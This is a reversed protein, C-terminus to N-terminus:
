LKDHILFVWNRSIEKYKSNGLKSNRKVYEICITEKDYEDFSSTKWYQGVVGEIQYVGLFAYFPSIIDISVDKVEYPDIFVPVLYHIDTGGNPNSVHIWFDFIRKTNTFNEFQVVGHVLEGGVMKDPYETWRLGIVDDGRSNRGAFLPVTM